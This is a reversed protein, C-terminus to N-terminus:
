QRFSLTDSVTVRNYGTKKSQILAADAALLLEESSQSLNATTSAVGLSITVVFLPFGGFRSIDHAIALDRVAQCISEAIKGAEAADVGPLLVAFEEGGYYAVLRVGAFESEVAQLTSAIKQLCADAEARSYAAKYIKFHDIEAFILSLPSNESASKQWEQQLVEEFYRRNALKTLDDRHTLEQLQINEQELEAIGVFSSQQSAQMQEAFYRRYLECSPICGSEVLNVLGLSDLKYAIVSELRVSQLATIVQKFAAYIASDERAAAFLRRLHDSYIGGETAAEKLLRDITVDQRYLHYLALHVLYPHGGVVAVLRKAEGGDTWELGYRRALEQVQAASFPPLKIPLGVNFPSQNVNLPIYVETSYAVVLRLKRWIEIQKAQEHWFRLMALFDRAIEPHEFVLNIENLNLVLPASLQELLYGEFYNTCSVKSGIEEMWYDDLNSELQLQRAVNLSFWRLFADLSAFASSDAQQFDLTVSRYGLAAARDCIRLMLSTKGMRRPAKIRIVCGPKALETYALEEIPPRSIYFGSDLPVPGRPFEPSALRHSPPSNEILQREAKSLSRPELIARFNSEDIAKGWFDSLGSWLESATKESAGETDNAEGAIEARSKGEWATRLLKEQFVTLPKPLCANLLQVVQDITM